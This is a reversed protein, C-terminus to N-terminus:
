KVKLEIVKLDSDNLTKLFAKATERTLFAPFFKRNVGYAESTYGLVPEENSGEGHGGGFSEESIIVFISTITAKDVISEFLKNFKDM